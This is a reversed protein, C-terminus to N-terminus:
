GSTPKNSGGLLLLFLLWMVSWAGSHSNGGREKGKTSGEGAKAGDEADKPSGEADKSGGGAGDWGKEAAALPDQGDRDAM